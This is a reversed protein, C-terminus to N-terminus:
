RNSERLEVRDGSLFIQERFAIVGESASPKDDAGLSVIQLGSRRVM